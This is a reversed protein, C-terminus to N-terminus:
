QSDNDRILSKRLDTIGALAAIRSAIMGANRAGAPTEFGTTLWQLGTPKTIIRSIAWGPLAIVAGGSLRKLINSSTQDEIIHKPVNLIIGGLQFMELLSNGTNGLLSQTNQMRGIVESFKKLDPLFEKGYIKPDFIEGLVDEGYRNLMLDFREGQVAGKAM